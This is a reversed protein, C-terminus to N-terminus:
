RRRTELNRVQGQLQTFLVRLSSVANELRNVRSLLNNQGHLEEWIQAFKPDLQPDPAVPADSAPQTVHTELM